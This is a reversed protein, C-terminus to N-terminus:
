AERIDLSNSVMLKSVIMSVQQFVAWEWRSLIHKLLLSWISYMDLRNKFDSIEAERVRNINQWQIDLYLLGGLVIPWISQKQCSLSGEYSTAVYKKKFLQLLHTWVIQPLWHDLYIAQQTTTCSKVVQLINAYNLNYKGLESNALHLHVTSKNSVSLAPIKGKSQMSKVIPYNRMIAYRSIM